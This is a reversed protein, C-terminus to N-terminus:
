ISSCPVLLLRYNWVRKSSTSSEELNVCLLESKRGCMTQKFVSLLCVTGKKNMQLVSPPPSAVKIALGYAGRFSHSDRVVFSGPEKDKLVAIATLFKLFSLFFCKWFLVYM